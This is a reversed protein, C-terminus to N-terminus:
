KVADESYRNNANWLMFEDIGNEELARIQAKVQEPGYKIYGK